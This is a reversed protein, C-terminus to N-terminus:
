KKNSGFRLKLTTVISNKTTKFVNMKSDGKKLDYRLVFPVEAFQVGVKHLKYLIEMMCAFSSNEITNEGYVEYVKQLSERSYLRYGCTYDKVNPVRLFLSYFVKAGDSLFHRVKSLGRVKSVDCYRSAIVCGSNTSQMKDIMSYIYKPLHSNDGDMLVCLDGEKSNENFFTFATDLVGGLGKNVKHAILYVNDNKDEMEKIIERTSDKSGDDIGYIEIKYGYEQVLKEEMSIWDNILDEINESENYCPLMVFLKKM